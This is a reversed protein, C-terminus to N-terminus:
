IAAFTLNRHLARSRYHSRTLDSDKKDEHALDQYQGQLCSAVARSASPHRTSHPSSHELMGPAPSLCLWPQPDM